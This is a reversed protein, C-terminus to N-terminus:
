DWCLDVCMHNKNYWHFSVYLYGLPFSFGICTVCLWDILNVLSIYWIELSLQSFRGWNTTGSSFPTAFLDKVRTIKLQFVKLKKELFEMKLQLIVAKCYQVPRQWVDVHILWLFVYTGERKFWEGVEWEM